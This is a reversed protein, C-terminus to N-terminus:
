CSLKGRLTARHIFKPKNPLAAPPVEERVRADSDRCGFCVGSTHRTLQTCAGISCVYIKPIRIRLGEM